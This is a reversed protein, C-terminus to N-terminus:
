VAAAERSHRTREPRAALMEEEREVAMRGLLAFVLLVGGSIWAGLSFPEPARMGLLLGGSVLVAALVGFLRMGYLFVFPLYHAGLVIMFAPYFWSERYLTAAGVVPLSLPLTFAIQMALAQLPNGPMLRAPRGMLRLLTVTLPFIFFGGVVLLTMAARPTGWTAVAASGLWLLGSVLQGAFGGRFTRRVDRQALAVPTFAPDSIPNSM